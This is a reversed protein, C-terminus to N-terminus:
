VLDAQKSTCWMKEIAVVCVETSGNSAVIFYIINTYNDLLKHQHARAQLVGYKIIGELRVRQLQQVQHHGM